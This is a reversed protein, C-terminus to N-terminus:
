IFNLSCHGQAQNHWILDHATTLGGRYLKDERSASPKQVSARSGTGHSHIREASIRPFTTLLIPVCCCCSFAQNILNICGTFALMVWLFKVRLAGFLFQLLRCKIKKNKDKSSFLAQIKMHIRQRADSSVDLRM